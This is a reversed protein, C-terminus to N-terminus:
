LLKIGELLKELVEEIGIYSTDIEIAGEPKMLPAVARGQDREDREKLSALIDEYEVNKGAAILQDYRRQARVEVDATIYIKIDADPAIVTGIDRGEMIVRSHNFLFDRQPKLLSERVEPIAAIISTMRTVPESYLDVDVNDSGDCVNDDGRANDDGRLRPDLIQDDQAQNLIEYTEQSEPDLGSHSTGLDGGERSHCNKIVRAALRRYFVSSQCHEFSFREAILKALTGKGSASTGDLAIICRSKPDQFKDAMCHTKKTLLTDTTFTIKQTM